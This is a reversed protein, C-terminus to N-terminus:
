SRDNENQNESETNKDAIGTLFAQLIKDECKRHHKNKPKRFYSSLMHKSIEVDSKKLIALIDEAELELAIKLKRLITNNNLKQELEPASGEKKGRNTNILGNLFSALEHDELSKLFEEIQKM